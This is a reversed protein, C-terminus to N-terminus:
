NCLPESTGVTTYTSAAWDQIQERSMKAVEPLRPAFTSCFIDPRMKAADISIKNAMITRLDNLRGEPNQIGINQFHTILTSEYGAFLDGHRKSIERYQQYFNKWGRPTMHQCNLGIVMLESHIRIGQEAEAEKPTFCSKIYDAAQVPTCVMLLAAILLFKKMRRVYRIARSFRLRIKTYTNIEM